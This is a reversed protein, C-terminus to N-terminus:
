HHVSRMTAYAQRIWNLWSNNALYHTYTPLRRQSQMISVHDYSITYALNFRILAFCSFVLTETVNKEMNLSTIGMSDIRIWFAPISQSLCKKRYYCHKHTYINAKMTRSHHIMANLTGHPFNTKNLKQVRKKRSAWMFAFLFSSFNPLFVSSTLHQLLKLMNM